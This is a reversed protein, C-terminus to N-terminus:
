DPFANESVFHLRSAHTDSGLEMSCARQGQGPRTGSFDQTEGKINKQVLSVCM